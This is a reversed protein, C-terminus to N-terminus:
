YCIDSMKNSNLVQFFLLISNSVAKFVYRKISACIIEREQKLKPHGKCTYQVVYGAVNSIERIDPCLPDTNYLLIKVDNNARWSQTMIM